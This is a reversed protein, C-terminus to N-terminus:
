RRRRVAAQQERPADKGMTSMLRLGARHEPRAGALSWSPRVETRGDQLREPPGPSWAAVSMPPPVDRTALPGMLFPASLVRGEADGRRPHRAQQARRLLDRAPDGGRRRLRRQTRGRRAGPPSRHGGGPLRRHLHQLADGVRPLLAAREGPALRDDARGQHRARRGTLVKHDDLKPPEKSAAVKLTQEVLDLVLDRPVVSTGKVTIAETGAAGLDCLFRLKQEFAKPLALKFSCTRIGKDKFAMPITAPESHITYYCTQTGVPDPFDVEEAGAFPPYEVWDGDEYPWASMLFENLITDLSYPPVLPAAATGWNAIGDTIKVSEVTDLRLYAYRAMVNVIGPASGSGCVATLGAARFREDLALQKKAWHFLGGTDTYHCGAKLCAEMVGENFYAMSCNVVVDCPELVKALAEIDTVDVAATSLKTSAMAEKRAALGRENMDALVIGEVEESEVLDRIAAEAMKGAGGVVCIRM